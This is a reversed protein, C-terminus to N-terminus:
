VRTPERIYSKLDGNAMYPLVVYPQSGKMVIGILSLVNEHDFDRMIVAEELFAGVEKVTHLTGSLLIYQFANSSLM